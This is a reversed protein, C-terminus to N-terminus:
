RGTQSDAVPALKATETAPMQNKPAAFHLSLGLNGLHLGSVFSEGREDHSLVLTSTETLKESSVAQPLVVAVAATGKKGVMIPAPLSPSVLSFMYDGPSLLVSGWRADHTLTFKGNASQAHASGVTTGLVGLALVFVKLLSSSRISKM